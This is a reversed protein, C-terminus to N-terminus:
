FVVSGLVVVCFEVPKGVVTVFMDVVTVDVFLAVFLVLVVIVEVVVALVVDVVTGGVAVLAEVVVVDVV